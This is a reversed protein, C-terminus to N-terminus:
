ELGEVELSAAISSNPISKAVKPKQTPKPMEMTSEPLYSAPETPTPNTMTDFPGVEQNPDEEELFDLDLEFFKQGVRGEYHKFGKIFAQQGFVVNLNWMKSSAKFEKVVQAMAESTLKVMRAELDIVKIKAEKRREEEMALTAKLGISIFEEKWLADQLSGVEEVKEQMFCEVEVVKEVKLLGIEAQLDEKAKLM